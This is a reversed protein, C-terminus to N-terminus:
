NGTLKVQALTNHQHFGHNPLSEFLKISSVEIPTYHGLAIQQLAKEQEPIIKLNKAKALTIHPTYRRDDSNLGFQTLGDKIRERLVLLDDIQGDVSMWIIKPYHINPFGDIYGPSVKFPPVGQAAQTILSILKDKIELPQEGIFAITLHLKDSHTLRVQPIIQNLKTQIRVIDQHSNPPIELAIFFRM